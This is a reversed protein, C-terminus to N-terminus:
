TLHIDSLLHWNEPDFNELKIGQNLAAASILRINFVTPNVDQDSKFHKCIYANYPKVDMTWYTNIKNYAYACYGIKRSSPDDNCLIVADPNHSIFDIIADWM